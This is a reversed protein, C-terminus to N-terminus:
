VLEAVTWGIAVAFTAAQITAALIVMWTSPERRLQRRLTRRTRGPDRLERFLLVAVCVLLLVLVYRHMLHPLGSAPGWTSEGFLTLERRQPGIGARRSMVPNSPAGLRAEHVPDAAGASDAARRHSSPSPNGVTQGHM